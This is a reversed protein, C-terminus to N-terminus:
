TCIDKISKRISEYVCLSDPKIIDMTQLRKVRRKLYRKRIKTDANLESITHKGNIMSCLISADHSGINVNHTKKIVKRINRWCEIRTHNRSLLELTGDYVMKSIYFIVAFEITFIIVFIIIMKALYDQIIAHEPYVASRGDSTIIIETINYNSNASFELKCYTNTSMRPFEILIIDKNHSIKGELCNIDSIKVESDFLIQALVNKAQIIGTNKIEIGSMNSEDPFTKEVDFDTLLEASFTNSAFLVTAIPIIIVAIDKTNMQSENLNM